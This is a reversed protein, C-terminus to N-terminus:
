FLTNRRPIDQAPAPAAYSRTLVNPRSVATATASQTLPTHEPLTSRTSVRPLTDQSAHLACTLSFIAPTTRAPLLAARIRRCLNMDTAHPPTLADASAPSGDAQKDTQRGRSGHHAEAYVATLCPVSCADCASGLVAYYRLVATAGGQASPSM